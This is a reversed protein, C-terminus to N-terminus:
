RGAEKRLFAALREPAVSGGTMGAGLGRATFWTAVNRADRELYEVGRPNAVVDVIQPLDIIVLRGHHVLLNYPSLDGHAYGRRALNAMAEVLQNWVDCLEDAELRTNVLRPAAVGQPEGIFEMLIETGVIQVPYPVPIGWEYCMKLANFESAAWQNAIVGRGFDTRNTMARMVRSEKVRRGELYGADRHFLRHEPARYRKAAMLMRRDTDPVERRILFVDGEKGTKMIGLETDVAGLDTIVWGPYPLPGRESPTSSDWTSWRDGDPRGDTNHAIDWDERQSNYKEQVEEDDFRKKTRRM